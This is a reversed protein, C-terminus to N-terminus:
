QPDLLRFRCSELRDARKPLLVGPGGQDESVFVIGASKLASVLKMATDIRGGITGHKAELRGLTPVSIGAFNALESQSWGLLARAARVQSGSPESEM